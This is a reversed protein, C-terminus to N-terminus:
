RPKRAKANELDAQLGGAAQKVLCEIRSGFLHKAAAKNFFRARKEFGAYIWTRFGQLTETVFLRHFKQISLQRKGFGQTLTLGFGPLVGFALHGPKAGFRGDM